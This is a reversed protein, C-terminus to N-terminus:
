LPFSLPPPGITTQRQDGGGRRGDALGTGDVSKGALVSSVRFLVMSRQVSSPWPDTENACRARGVVSRGGM